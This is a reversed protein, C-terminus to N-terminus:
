HIVGITGIGPTILAIRQYKIMSGSGLFVVDGGKALVREVQIDVPDIIAENVDARHSLSKENAGYSGSKVHYDEELFLSYVVDSALSSAVADLGMVISGSGAAEELDRM